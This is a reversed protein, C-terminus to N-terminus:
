IMSLHTNVRKILDLSYSSYVQVEYIKGEFHNTNGQKQGITDLLLNGSQTETDAQAVGDLYFTCVNSADRALMVTHKQDTELDSDLSIFKGASGAIKFRVLSEDDFRIFNNATSDSAIFTDSSIPDSIHMRMAVIFGGDLDIESSCSLHDNGDFNVSGDLVTYSPKAGSTSQTFDNGQTSSDTWTTVDALDSAHGLRKHELFLELDLETTPHWAKTTNLSLKNSLSLM